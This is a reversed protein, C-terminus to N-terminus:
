ALGNGESEQVVRLQELREWTPAVVGNPIVLTYRGPQESVVDIVVNEPIVVGLYSELAARPDLYLDAAFTGDTAARHRVRAELAERGERVVLHALTTEDKVARLTRRSVTAPAPTPTALIPRPSMPIGWKTFLTVRDVIGAPSETNVGRVLYACADDSLANETFGVGGFSLVTLSSYYGPNRCCEAPTEKTVVYYAPNQKVYAVAFADADAKKDASWSIGRVMALVCHKVLMDKWLGEDFGHLAADLALGYNLDDPSPADFTALASVLVKEDSVPTTFTENWHAAPDMRITELKQRAAETSKQLGIEISAFESNWSAPFKDKMAGFVGGFIGAIAGLGPFEGGAPLTLGKIGASAISILGLLWGPIPPTPPVSLLKYANDAYHNAENNFDKVLSIIGSLNDKVRKVEGTTPM